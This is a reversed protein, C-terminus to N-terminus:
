LGMRPRSVAAGPATHVPLVDGSGVHHAGLMRGGRRGGGVQARLALCRGGHVPVSHAASWADCLPRRARLCVWVLAAFLCINRYRGKPKPILSAICEVAQPPLVGVLECAMWLIGTM